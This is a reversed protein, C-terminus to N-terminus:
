ESDMNDDTDNGPGYEESVGHKGSSEEDIFRGMEAGFDHKVEEPEQEPELEQQPHSIGPTPPGHLTGVLEPPTM